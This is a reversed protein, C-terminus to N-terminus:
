GSGSLGVTSVVTAIAFVAVTTRRLREPTLWAWGRNQLWARVGSAGAMATMACGACMAVISGRRYGQHSHTGDTVPMVVVM